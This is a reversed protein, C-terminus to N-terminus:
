VEVKIKKKEKDKHKYGASVCVQYEVGNIIPFEKEPNKFIQLIRARDGALLEKLKDEAIRRATEREPNKFIKLIREKGSSLSETLKDKTIRLM